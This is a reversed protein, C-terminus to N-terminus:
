LKLVRDFFELGMARKARALTQEALANARRTGDRLVRLVRDPDTELEARRARM